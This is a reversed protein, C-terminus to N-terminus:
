PNVTIGTNATVTAIIASDRYGAQVLASLLQQAQNPNVAILLGGCTQPDYLLEAISQECQQDVHLELLKKNQLFLSSRIGQQACLKSGPYLPIATSSITAGRANAKLMEQLHGALGFGTIDTCASAKFDQALQAAQKNSHLMSELAQDLWLSKAKLQAQAAFLVGSGIAKTLILQDGAALTSKTLLQDQKILGNICFGLSLEPAESSHGGILQCQHQELTHTAGQMLLLLDRETIADGAYPLNVLAQASHAHGGMAYIDSLAHLAALQGQQFPNSVLGKFNDISQLLLQSDNPLQLAAADDSNHVGLIVSAQQSISLQSIVRSLISGGVKAGCGGCRMAQQAMEQKSAGSIAPAVALKKNMGPLTKLQSSMAMFKSDIRNKWQWVLGGSISKQNRTAIAQKGGLAIIKLFEQQPKYSRLKKKLAHRCLNAFLTPGQRVAFVGAQPRPHQLQQAADGAAFLWDTNTSQLEDNLTIFGNADCAIGSARPWPAPKAQTCLLHFDSHLQQNSNNVSDPKFEEVSFNKHLEVGAQQLAQHCHQRVKDTHGPLIDDQSFVLQLKAKLKLQRLRFVMALSLEVGAVGAGIVTITKNKQEEAQLQSLLQLWQQHFNAIPKVGIAYDEAGSIQHDPTIGTNISMSDAFIDAQNDLQISKRDRNIGLVKAKIFRVGAFHCLRQLDIHTQEFDYHGAILGPLMGSYPTYSSPNILSLRVGPIPKMAWMKLVQAHAHGGGILVIDFYNPTHM